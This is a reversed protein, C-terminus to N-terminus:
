KLIVWITNLLPYKKNKERENREGIKVISRNSPKVVFQNTEQSKDRISFKDWAGQPHTNTLYIQM